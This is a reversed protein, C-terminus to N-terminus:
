NYQGVRVAWHEMENGSSYMVSGNTDFITFGRSGGELDGEDATAIYENGIWAVADPERPVGKLSGTQDIVGDNVTDVMDLDVSGTTFSYIVQLAALDVLAVANNEQLTVAAINDENIAVFEPEPDSAFAVGDLGTLEVTDMIWTTPDEINSSDIVALFGAPLQPIAGDNLDEDRENEIAIAIFNKDPSVAVSDPQGDIAMTHVINRNAISIIIVTGSPNVFNPSTNVAVVAFDGIVAVATPEGGAEVVGMGKPSMIDAIDVFGIVGREADTYVLTNGDETAYVIESVTETDNNCTSDIQMCVPYNAVRHFYFESLNDGGGNDGSSLVVPEIVKQNKLGVTLGIVIICVMMFGAFSM